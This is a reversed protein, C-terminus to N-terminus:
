AAATFPIIKRVHRGRLEETIRDSKARNETTWLPQCNTFRFAAKQQDPQSLDFASIPTKHDIEWATGYNSWAMGEVFQVEIYARFQEFTCGLLSRSKSNKRTSQRQMACRMRARLVHAMRVCPNEARRVRIYDARQKKKEPTNHAASRVYSHKYSKFAETKNRCSARANHRERFDSDSHYKRKSHDRKQQLMKKYGEISTWVPRGMDYRRFVKGPLEPHPQGVRFKIATATEM